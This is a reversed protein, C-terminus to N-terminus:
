KNRGKEGLVEKNNEYYEKARNFIAEKDRQYYTRESIKVYHLFFYYNGKKM